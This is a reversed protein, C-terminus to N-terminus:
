GLWRKLHQVLKQPGESLQRGLRTILHVEGQQLIPHAIPIAVLQGDAVERAVVFEPLLTVGMGSRVFHKLVAISDTTLKPHFRIRQQFEAMGILQRVGYDVDQLGIPYELLTELTVPTDVTTLPHDPPVIACIPKLVISQSRINPHKSPHFLLGIHVEDQEVKRIVDNSGGLTVSFTLEPYQAQFQPLPGSMLDGIFGEGVALKIHGSQLGHLSELSTLCAEQNSISERYYKLVIGGADTTAVGKRHREILVCGLEEELMSIQRSVASPAVNLKDAAARITGLMVAEYFYAVRKENIPNM